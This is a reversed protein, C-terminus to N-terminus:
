LYHKHCWQGLSLKPSKTKYDMGYNIELGYGCIRIEFWMRICEDKYGFAKAVQKKGDKLNVILPKYPPWFGIDIYFNPVTGIGRRIGSESRYVFQRRKPIHIQVQGKTYEEAKKDAREKLEKDSISAYGEERAIRDDELFKDMGKNKIKSV